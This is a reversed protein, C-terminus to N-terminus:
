GIKITEEPYHFNTTPQKNNSWSLLTNSVGLQGIFMLTIILLLCPGGLEKMHTTDMINLGTTGFSSTVLFFTGIFSVDPNFALIFISGIFVLVFGTAFVSFSQNVTDKSIQKKFMVLDKKGKLKTIIFMVVIAFTTTRIGGATSSPASGIFMLLSQTLLSANLFNSTDVTSFGANRTSLTNFLIAMFGNWNTDAEQLIVSSSQHSYEISFIIALGVFSILLYSVINVKSFLSLTRNKQEDKRWNKIEYFAPFGIGGIVFDFIIIFQLSYCHNYPQFSNNGVIDFGANNLASISHFLAFWFSYGVNHYPNDIVVSDPQYFFFIIFTLSTSIAELILLFLATEKILKVTKGLDNNGREENALKIEQIDPKKGWASWIVIKLTLVGFGGLQILILILIQGFISYDASANPISLGTDSFASSANFLSYLYNWSYESNTVVGPIALLLGAILVITLYILLIITFKNKIRINNFNYRFHKDMKSKKAKRKTKFNNFWDKIWYFDFLSSKDVSSYSTISLNNM